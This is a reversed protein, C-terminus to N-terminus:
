RGGVERFRATFHRLVKAQWTIELGRVRDRRDRVGELVEVVYKLHSNTYVRRPIALRVLEMPAFVPDGTEPDAGGFMVSGIEVGRVAGARYLAVVLAQAPFREPPVDPLFRRADLYVAHGGPPKVLPVGAGELARAFAAVQGIRYRLYDEDVVEALGQAIAELDRGA